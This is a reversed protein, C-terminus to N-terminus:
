YTRDQNRKFNTSMLIMIEYVNIDRCSSMQVYRYKASAPILNLQLQM